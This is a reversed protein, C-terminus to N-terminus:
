FVLLILFPSALLCGVTFGISNISYKQLSTVGLPPVMKSGNIPDPDVPDSRGVALKIKNAYLFVRFVKFNAMRRISSAVVM